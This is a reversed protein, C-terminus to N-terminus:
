NSANWYVEVRCIEGGSKGRRDVDGPIAAAKLKKRYPVLENM